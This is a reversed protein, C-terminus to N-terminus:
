ARPPATAVPELVVVPIRRATRRQYVEYAPDIAVFRSWLREREAGEAERARVRTARGAVRVEAEPDARLNLWWSPHRPEGAFSAIVVYADGESLHQLAVRKAAGSKRGRSVLVLVPFGNTSAIFRGGSLEFLARHLRWFATILPTRRVATM